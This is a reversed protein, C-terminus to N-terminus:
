KRWGTPLAPRHIAVRRKKDASATPREIRIQDPPRDRCRALPQPQRVRKRRVGQPVAKRRMEKRTARVQSGKLLQKSVGAQRRCLNVSGNVSCPQEVDIAVGM